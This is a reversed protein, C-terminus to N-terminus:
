IPRPSPKAVAGGGMAHGHRRRQHSVAGQQNRHRRPARHRGALLRASRASRAQAARRHEGGRRTDQHSARPTRSLGPHAAPQLHPLGFDLSITPLRDQLLGRIRAPSHPPRRPGLPRRAGRRRRGISRYRRAHLSPPLTPTEFRAAPHRRARALPRDLSHNAVPQTRQGQGSLPARNGQREEVSEPIPLRASHARAARLRAQPRDRRLQAHRRRRSVTADQGAQSTRCAAHYDANVRLTGQGARTAKLSM